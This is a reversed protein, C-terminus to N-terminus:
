ADKYKNLLNFNNDITRRLFEYYDIKDQNLRDELKFSKEVIELIENKTKLIFLGEFNENLEIAITFIKDWGSFNEFREVRGIMTSTYGINTGLDQQSIGKKLRAFRFVCGIQINIMQLELKNYELMFYIKLFLM